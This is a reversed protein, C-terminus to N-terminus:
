INRNEIAKQTVVRILWKELDNEAPPIKRKALEVFSAQVISASAQKCRTIGYAIQFLKTAYLTVFSKINPNNKKVM